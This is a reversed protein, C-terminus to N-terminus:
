VVPLGNPLGVGRPQPNGRLYFVYRAAEPDREYHTAIDATPELRVPHLRVLSGFLTDAIVGENAALMFQPDLTSPEM